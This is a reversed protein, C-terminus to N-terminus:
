VSQFAGGHRISVNSTAILRDGVMQELTPLIREVHEGSDIFEVVLPLMGGADAPSTATAGEWRTYGAVGRVVTAGAIGEQSLFELLQLHLPRGRWQDSENIFISVRTMNM